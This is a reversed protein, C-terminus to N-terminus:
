QPPVDDAAIKSASEFKTYRKLFTLEVPGLPGNRQKAILLQVAIGDTEVSPTDDDEENKKKWLFGILDADQEIAGSERLDSMIPMPTKRKDVDRNLQCLVIVPVDLEKAMEKIGNSVEAIEFSRNNESKRSFGHIKQLYDIIFISTDYEQKMRRAKARLQLITIGAKDNIVIPANALKGAASTIKPFDRESFYGENMDRLNVRARACVQRMMLEQKSMELSFIGVPKKLEVAIHDAINMGIATKGVSPRAAIVIMHKNRLGWTMKDLDTFGTGLGVLQGQRAHMWEMENIVDHVLPKAEMQEDEDIAKRVCLADSEFADIIVDSREKGDYIRSITSNCAMLAKRLTWKDIILDIYIDIHATSPVANRLEALYENGGAAELQKRDRLRQIISIFDVKVKETDLEVFVEYIIVHRPDFFSDAGDTLRSICIPLCEHPSQLVCGILAQESEISQPPEHVPPAALYEAATDNM